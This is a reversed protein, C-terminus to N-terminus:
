CPNEEGLWAIVDALGDRVIERGRERAWAIEDKDCARTIATTNDPHILTVNRAAYPFVLGDIILQHTTNDIVIEHAIKTM